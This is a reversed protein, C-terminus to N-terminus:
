PGLLEALLARRTAPPAAELPFGFLATNARRVAAVKAGSGYTALASAGAEVALVDPFDVDYAGGIAFAGGSWQASAVGASDAAFKAGFVRSLFAPGWDAEYTGHLAYALEAGSAILRGGGDAFAELLVAENRNVPHNDDGSLGALWVVADFAKLDCRGREVWENSCSAVGVAVDVDAGVAAAFAHQPENFAGDLTRDFADVVLARRAGGPRAFYTDSLESAPLGDYEAVVRVWVPGAAGAVTTRYSLQNTGSVGLLTTFVAGDGSAQVDFHHPRSSAEGFWEVTLGGSEWEVRRLIPQPSRRPELPSYRWYEGLDYYDYVVESHGSPVEHFFYSAAALDEEVPRGDGDAPALGAGQLDARLLQSQARPGSTAYNTVLKGSQALSWKTYDAREGYFSDLLIVEALGGPVGSKTLMDSLSLYSGSHASVVVRGLVPHRVLGERYLAILVEDILRRTGDQQRLAHFDDAQQKYLGQPVILVANRNAYYAQERYKKYGLTSVVDGGWGHMAIEVDVTRADARFDAPVGFYVYASAPYSANSTEPWPARPLPSITGTAWRSSTFTLTDPLAADGVAAYIPAEAVLPGSAIVVTARYLREDTGTIAASVELKVSAGPAIAPLVPSVSFAGADVGGLTVSGAVTAVDGTNTVTLHQVSFPTTDGSRRYGFSVRDDVRLAAPARTPTEVPPPAPTEPPTPQPTESPANGAAAAPEVDRPAFSRPTAEEPSGCGALLVVCVVRKIPQVM